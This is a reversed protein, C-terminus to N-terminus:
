SNEAIKRLLLVADNNRIEGDGDLDAAENVISVNYGALYRLLLVADNNKVLTDGNVDGEVVKSRDFGCVYCIDEGNDYLHGRAPVVEGEQMVKGCLLCILDGTYGDETCSNEKWGVGQGVHDYYGCISMPYKENWEPTDYEARRTHGRFNWQAKLFYSYAGYKGADWTADVNYYVDEIRVINWGHAGGNYDAYGRIYRSDIGLSLVMRYFLSAYGQCVATRDIIAAYATYQPLYDPDNENHYTDYEVNDCIWDYVAKIKEVDTGEGYDLESLLKNIAQTAIEEQEKTTYYDPFYALQYLKYNGGTSYVLGKGNSSWYICRYIYDGQNPVGTHETFVERLDDWINGNYSTPMSILVYFEKNYNLLQERIFKGAQQVGDYRTMTNIDPWNPEVQPLDAETFRNAFLPDVYFNSIEGIFERETIIGFNASLTDAVAEAASVPMVALVCLLLILAGRMIKKM